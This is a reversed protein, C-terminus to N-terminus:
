GLDVKQERALTLLLDIPGEFGDLDLVLQQPRDAPEPRMRGTRHDGACLPAVGRCAHRYAVGFYQSRLGDARRYVSARVSVAASHSPVFGHGGSRRTQHPQLTTAGSAM